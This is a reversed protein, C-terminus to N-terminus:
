GFDESFLPVSALSFAFLPRLKTWDTLSVLHIYDCSAIQKVSQMSTCIKFSNTTKIYNIIIEYTETEQINRKLCYFQPKINKYNKQREPVYSGTIVNRKHSIAVQNVFELFTVVQLLTSQRHTM